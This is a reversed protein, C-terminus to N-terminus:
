VFKTSGYKRGKFVRLIDILWDLGTIIVENRGMNSRRSLNTQMRKVRIM